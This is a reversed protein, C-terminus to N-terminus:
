KASDSVRRREPEAMSSDSGGHGFELEYGRINGASAHAHVVRVIGVLRDSFLPYIKLNWNSIQFM